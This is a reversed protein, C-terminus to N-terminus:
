YVVAGVVLGAATVGLGIINLLNSSLACNTLFCAAQQQGV